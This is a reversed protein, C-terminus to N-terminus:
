IVKNSFALGAFANLDVHFEDLDAPPPGVLVRRDVVAGPEPYQPEISLQVLADAQRKQSLDPPRHREGDSFQLAVVSLLKRELEDEADFGGPDSVTVDAWPPGLLVALDFAAVADVLFLKPPPVLEGIEVLRGRRETSPLPGVVVIPKRPTM